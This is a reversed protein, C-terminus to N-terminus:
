STELQNVKEKRRRIEELLMEDDIETIAPKVNSLGLRKEKAEAQEEEEAERMGDKFAKRTQGFSKALEPLRNAGFLLFLAAVILIWEQPSSFIFLPLPKIFLLEIM